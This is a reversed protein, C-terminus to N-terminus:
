ARLANITNEVAGSIVAAGLLVAAGIITYYFAMKAKKLKEDNGQATVFLFGCYIIAMVVVVAGVPVVVENLIRTIFGSLTGTAGLPNNFLPSGPNVGGLDAFATTYLFFLLLSPFSFTYRLKTLKM